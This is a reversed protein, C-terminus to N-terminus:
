IVVIRRRQQSRCVCTIHMSQTPRDRVAGINVDLAYDVFVSVSRICSKM